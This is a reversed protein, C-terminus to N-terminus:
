GLHSRAHERARERRGLHRGLRRQRRFVADRDLVTELDRRARRGHVPEAEGPVAEAANAGELAGTAVFYLRSGAENAGAVLGQVDAHEGENLVEATIDSLACALPGAPPATVECEYLDPAGSAASANPTLRQTDTFFVRTGDVSAIQYIPEEPEAGEPTVGQPVDLRLSEGSQTDRVYLGVAEGTEPRWYVLAGDASVANRANEAANYQTGIKAGVSTESAGPLVSVDALGGQAWEYIAGPVSSATLPASSAFVVSTLAQNGGQLRIPQAGTLETGKLVAGPTLLPEYQAQGGAETRRYPSGAIGGEALSSASWPAAIQATLDGSFLQYETGQGTFAGPAITYPTAMDTTTWGGGAHRALDVTAYNGQAEQGGPARRAFVIASGGRAVVPLGEEQPCLAPGGAGAAVTESVRQDPLAASAVGQQTRLRMVTGSDQEGTDEPAGEKKSCTVRYVYETGPSLDTSHARVKVPEEGAAVVASAPIESALEGSAAYNAASDYDFHCATPTAEPNIEAELTASTATVERAWEGEIATSPRSM